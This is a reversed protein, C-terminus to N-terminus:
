IIFNKSDKHRNARILEWGIAPKNNYFYCYLSSNFFIWLFLNWTSSVIQWNQTHFVTATKVPKSNCPLHPRDTGIETIQSVRGLPFELSQGLLFWLQMQRSAWFELLCRVAVLQGRVWVGHLCTTLDRVIKPENKEHFYSIWDSAVTIIKKYEKALTISILIIIPVFRIM